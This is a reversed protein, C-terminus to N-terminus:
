DWPLPQVTYWGKSGRKRLMVEFISFTDLKLPRFVDGLIIQKAALFFNKKDISKFNQLKIQWVDENIEDAQDFYKPDVTLPIYCQKLTWTTETEQWLEQVTTISM